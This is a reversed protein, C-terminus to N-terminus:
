QLFVNKINDGHDGDNNAVDTGDDLCRYNYTICFCKLNNKLDDDDNHGDDGDNHNDKGDYLYKEVM